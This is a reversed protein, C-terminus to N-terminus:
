GGTVGGGGGTIWNIGTSVPTWRCCVPKIRDRSASRINPSHRGRAGHQLKVGFLEFCGLVAFSRKQDNGPRAAALRADDGLADHMQEFRRAPGLRSKPRSVNQRQGEGLLGRALHLGTHLLGQGGELM